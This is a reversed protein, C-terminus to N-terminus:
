KSAFFWRSARPPSQGGGRLPKAIRAFPAAPMEDESAAELEAELEELRETRAALRREALSVDRKLTQNQEVLRRQVSTLQELRRELVGMKRQQVRLNLSQLLLRYQDQM